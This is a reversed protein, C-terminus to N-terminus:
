TQEVVGFGTPLFVNKTSLYPMGGHNVQNGFKQNCTIIDRACGAYVEVSDGIKLGPIPLKLTLKAVTSFGPSLDEQDLITMREGSIVHVLEGDKVWQWRLLDTVDVDPLDVRVETGSVHLATTVTKYPSSSGLSLQSRIVRCNTDYLIHPCTRGVSIQPLVRLLSSTLRSTIAFKATGDEDWEMSDVYGTWLTRIEGSTVQRRRITVLTQQPPVGQQLYIRALDHDIPLTLTVVQQAENSAPVRIESRMIPISTYVYPDIFEDRIASTHRWVQGLPPNIAIDILERPQSDEVSAEDEDFTSM